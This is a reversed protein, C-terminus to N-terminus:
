LKVMDIKIDFPADWFEGYMRGSGTVKGIGFSFKIEITLDGSSHYIENTKSNYSLITEEGDDSVWTITGDGNDRLTIIETEPDEDAGTMVSSYTGFISGTEIVSPEESVEESLAATLVDMRAKMVEIDPDWAGQILDLIEMPTEPLPYGANKLASKVAETGMGSVDIAEGNIAVKGDNSTSIEMGLVKNEFVLDLVSDSIYVLADGTGKVKDKLNALDFNLLGIVSTFPATKKKLENFGVSVKNKEGLIITSSTDAVEIACEIGSAIFGAGELVSVSAGGTAVLSLGLLAVKSTTKTAQLINVVKNNWNADAIAGQYIITQAITMQEYATKADVGLQQALQNYRKAGKLADYQKTLKEAWAKQDFEKSDEAAHAIAVFHFAKKIFTSLAAESELETVAQNTLEEASATFHAAAEWAAVLEDIKAKQEAESIQTLDESSLQETLLRAYVYQKLAIATAENGTQLVPPETERVVATLESEENGSKSQGGCAALNLIIMFILILAIKSKM